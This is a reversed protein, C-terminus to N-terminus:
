KFTYIFGLSWFPGVAGIQHLAPNYLLGNNGANPQGGALAGYTAFDYPPKANFANTISAQFTWQKDYAYQFNFNVYTFSAVNCYNPAVGTVAWRLGNDDTLGDQCTFDGVSPDTVNFRGVYNITATGTFPGKSWQIVGQARDKPNGTDGSVISPGHTGALQYKVGNLTLNYSIIHSWNASLMLKSTDPLTWTYASTLDFGDTQTQQANVYPTAIFQIPGVPTLGIAGNGFVGQQPTTRVAFDLPQFGNVSAATIIQNKLNIYYWDFTTAWGRIPEVVFGATYNDSKEPQLHKNAVQLYTPNFNCPNVTGILVVNQPSTLNPTGDPNSVPCLQPDRISNFGFLSGTNGAETMYPARFGTGATGRLAFERMPTWKVGVKPNWTSNSPVNYYDYRLAADVELSKLVPAALEAYAWANNQSGVAYASAGGGLNVTGDQAPGADPQSLNRYVDGAGIALGLPGGDLQMLDRSATAQAFSLNNWDVANVTPIVAGQLAGNNGTLLYPHAPDNLAAVLATENIYGNWQLYQRVNTYGAAGVIDWGWASGTLEAILRSTQADSSTTRATQDPILARVNAPTGFPNGPYTAPVTFHPIVSTIHPIENPGIATIGGFSGFPVAAPQIDQSAQSDFFMGKLNLTWDDPLRATGSAIFNVNQTRPQVKGWDNTYQCLNANRAQFNCNGNLFAFSAPNSTSGTPNQLYPANRIVPNSVVPSVAGPNLNVGGWSTYDTQNWRAGSRQQLTIDAQSRYEAALYGSLQSAPDGLGQLLQVDWTTGGGQTTTGGTANATFGQYNKKLIVNVVGAIADSGYIASAGDLLVEIRDVAVFPIASIDVFQRENDDTLPYGAQRYGDILVLTNAVTLGRLAVGSGGAAFARNFSQSLTGQGNSTLDRLVQSVSTYGSQIMQEATIVQVESPTETTTRPINTGTVEIKEIKQPQQQQQAAVPAVAMASFAGAAVLQAIALPLAKVKSNM